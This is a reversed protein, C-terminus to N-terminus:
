AECDFLNNNQSLTSLDVTNLVDFNMSIIYISVICINLKPIGTFYKKFSFLNDSNQTSLNDWNYFFLIM